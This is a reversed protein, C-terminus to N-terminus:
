AHQLCQLLLRATQAEELNGTIQTRVIAREVVLVVAAAVVDPQKLGMRAALQEIFRRFHEKQERVITCPECTFSEGEAAANSFALGFCKLDEFGEQLVDAIIDLGGGTAAYRAEIENELWHMWIVHRDRLYDSM